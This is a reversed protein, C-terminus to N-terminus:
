LSEVMITMNAVTPGSSLNRLTIRMGDSPRDIVTDAGGEEVYVDTELSSDDDVCGINMLIGSGSEGMNEFIYGGVNVPSGTYILTGTITEDSTAACVVPGADADGADVDVDGDMGGDLDTDADPGGDLDTDADADPGGDLDTDADADMGGDLDTDADADPGGDMDTDGDVDTDADLDPGGDHDTDADLDPGGDHDTDGDLDVDADMDTDADSQGADRIPLGNTEMGCSTPASAMGLALVTAAVKKMIRESLPAKTTIDRKTTPKGEEKQSVQTVTM